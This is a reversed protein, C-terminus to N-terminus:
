TLLKFVVLQNRALGELSEILFHSDLLRTEGSAERPDVILESEHVALGVEPWTETVCDDIYTTAKGHQLVSIM